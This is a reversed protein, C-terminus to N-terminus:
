DVKIRELAFSLNWRGYSSTTIGNKTTGTYAEQGETYKVRILGWEGDALLGAHIVATPLASDATYPGCGWVTGTNAARLIVVIEDGVKPARNALGALDVAKFERAAVRLKEYGARAELIPAILLEAKAPEVTPLESLTGDSWIATVRLTKVAPGPTLVLMRPVVNSLVPAFAAAERPLAPNKAFDDVAAANANPPTSVPTLLTVPTDTPAPVPGRFEFIGGDHGTIFLDGALENEAPRTLRLATTNATADRTAFWMPVPKEGARLASRPVPLSELFARTVEAGAGTGPTERMGTIRITQGQTFSGFFLTIAALVAACTATQWRM